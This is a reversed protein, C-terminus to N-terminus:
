RMGPMNGSTHIGNSPYDTDVPTPTPTPTEPAMTMDKPDNSSVYTRHTSTTTSMDSACGVLAVLGAFAFVPLVINKM